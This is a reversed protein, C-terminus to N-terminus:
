SFPLDEVISKDTDFFSLARASPPNSTRVKPVPVARAVFTRPVGTTEPVTVHWVSVPGPVAWVIVTLGNDVVKVPEAVTVKVAAAKFVYPSTMVGDLPVSVVVTLLELAEHESDVCSGTTGIEGSASWRDL